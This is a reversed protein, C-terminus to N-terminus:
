LWKSGKPTSKVTYQITWLLIKVAFSSIVWKTNTIFYITANSHLWLVNLKWWYQFAVAPLRNPSYFTHDINRWLLQIIQRHYVGVQNYEAKTKARLYSLLTPNMVTCPSFSHQIVGQKECTIQKIVDIIVGSFWLRQTFHTSLIAVLLCVM